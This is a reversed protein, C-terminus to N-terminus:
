SQQASTGWSYAWSDLALEDRYRWCDWHWYTRKWNPKLSLAAGSPEKCGACKPAAKEQKKSKNYDKTQKTSELSKENVRTKLTLSLDIDDIKRAEM